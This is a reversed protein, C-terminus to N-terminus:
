RLKVTYVGRLSNFCILENFESLKINREQIFGKEVLYNRLVGPLCPSRIPPTYWVDNIRCAVNAIGTETIEDNQNLFLTEERSQDHNLPLFWNKTKHCLSSDFSDVRIPSIILYEIPTYTLPAIQTEVLVDGSRNLDIEIRIRCATVDTVLSPLPTWQEMHAIRPFPGENLPPIICDQISPHSSFKASISDIIKEKLCCMDDDPRHARISSVLRDIHRQFLFIGKDREFRMTSVLVPLKPTWGRIFMSSHDDHYKLVVGVPSLVSLNKRAKVLIENWEEEPESLAVIAGGVGLSIKQKGNKEFFISRINVALDADGTVPSIYGFAGSYGLGRPRELSELIQMSRLKPAGTMSGPPFLALIAELCSKKVHGQVTSVLQHYPAFTEVHMLSPCTVTNHCVTSLDNRVLDVIMLNEASDKLNESLEKCIRLDESRTRGRPRTGKMPKVQAIGRRGDISLFREPSASLLFNGDCFHFFNGYQSPNAMRLKKYVEIADTEGGESGCTHEIRTTLCLEYSEGLGIAAKCAKVKEIYCSKSDRVFFNLLGLKEALVGEEEKKEPARMLLDEVAATIDSFWFPDSELFLAFIEGTESDFALVRDAEIVVADLPGKRSSLDSCEYGLCPFLCPVAIPPSKQDNYVSDISFNTELRKITEELLGKISEGEALRHLGFGPGAQLGGALFSYRGPAASSDLWVSARSESFFLSEYVSCSLHFITRPDVTLIKKCQSSYCPRGLQISALPPSPDPPLSSRSIGLGAMKCANVIIDSGRESLISEPHFQVGYVPLRRHRFSMPIRRTPPPPGEFSERFVSLSLNNQWSPCSSPNMEPGSVQLPSDLVHPDVDFCRSTVILDSSNELDEPDLIWSHYRVQEVEDPLGVFLTDADAPHDIEIKWRLGHRPVTKVLKIGCRVGIAEYGMCVGFLVPFKRAQDGELFDRIIFETVCGVDDFPNGPGPSLVILDFRGKLDRGKLTGLFDVDDNKVVLVDVHVWKRIEHVLNFTFSDYNDVILVRSFFDM